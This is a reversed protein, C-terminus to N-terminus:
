FKKFLVELIKLVNNSNIAWVCIAAKNKFNFTALAAGKGRDDVSILNPIKGIISEWEPRLQYELFYIFCEYNFIEM